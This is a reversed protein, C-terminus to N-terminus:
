GRKRSADSYITFGTTGCPMALIFTSTLERKYKHLIHEGQRARSLRLDSLHCLLVLFGKLMNKIFNWVEIMM